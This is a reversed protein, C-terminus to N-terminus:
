ANSHLSLIMASSRYRITANPHTSLNTSFNSHLLPLPQPPRSRLLHSLALLLLYPIIELLTKTEEPSLQRGVDPDVTIQPASSYHPKSWAHPAHQAKLPHTNKFRQLVQDIYSPM